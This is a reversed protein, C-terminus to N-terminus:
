VGFKIFIRESPVSNDWASVSLCVFSRSSLCVHRLLYDSKAIKRCPLFGDTFATYPFLQQEQRVETRFACIRTCQTPLVSFKNLNQFQQCVFYGCPKLFNTRNSSIIAAVLATTKTTPITTITAITTAAAASSSSSSSAPVKHECIQILGRGYRIRSFFVQRAGIVVKKLTHETM